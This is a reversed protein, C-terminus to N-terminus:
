YQHGWMLAQFFLPHYSQVLSETESFDLHTLSPETDFAM